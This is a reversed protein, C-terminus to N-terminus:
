IAQSSDFPKASLNMPARKCPRGRKICASKFSHESLTCSMSKSQSLASMSRKQRGGGHYRPGGVEAIRHVFSEIKPDYSLACFPVGCLSAFVLSHLRMGLVIDVRQMAWLLDSPCRAEVVTIPLALEKLATLDQNAQFPLFVLEFDASLTRLARRLAEKTHPSLGPRLSLGLSQGEGGAGRVEGTGEGCASLTLTLNPLPSLMALDEGLLVRADHAKAWQYSARDRVLVLRARQLTKAVWRESRQSRLPGIGQGILYTPLHYHQALRVLGVYYLL